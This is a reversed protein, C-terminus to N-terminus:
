NREIRTKLSNNVEEFTAKTVVVVDSNLVDYTNVAKSDLIRVGPVNRASRAAKANASEKKDGESSSIFLVKKGLLNLGKLLGSFEATRSTAISEFCFVEGSIVKDRLVGALAQRRSRKMTRNVYKRPHPGHAIAGGVWIPSTNTGARARGTGKQKWPKKTGGKMVGKTLTSHTGARKKLLQYRVADYVVAERVGKGYVVPDL